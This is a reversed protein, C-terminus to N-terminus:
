ISSITQHQKQTFNFDAHVDDSIIFVNYKEALSAIKRLNDESWITGTPNHPSILIFCCAMKFKDELDAFDIEYHHDRYLLASELLVRHNVEVAHSIPHYAPTLSVIADGPQTFNQIFLSVAQVVRPCFVIHEPNVKWSYHRQYWQAAVQQWDDSLLTYGYIGKQNAVSLESVIFDAVPIDMDAVSLPIIDRGKKNYKASYTGDRSIVKDFNYVKM